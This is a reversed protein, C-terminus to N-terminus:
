SDATKVNKTEGTGSALSQVWLIVEHMFKGYDRLKTKDELVKPTIENPLFKAGLEFSADLNKMLGGMVDEQSPKMGMAANALYKMTLRYLKTEPDIAVYEKGDIIIKPNDM